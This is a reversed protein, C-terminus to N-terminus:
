RRFFRSFSVEGTTEGPWNVTVEVQACNTRGVGCNGGSTINTFDVSYTYSDFGALSQDSVDTLSWFDSPEGRQKAVLEEMVLNAMKVAKERSLSKTNINISKIILTVVGTLVIGVVAVAFIVEIVSQGMKKM